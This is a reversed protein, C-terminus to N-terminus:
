CTNEVYTGRFPCLRVNPANDNVEICQMFFDEMEAREVAHRARTARVRLTERREKVLRRELSRVKKTLPDERCLPQGRRDPATKRPLVPHPTAHYSLRAKAHVHLRVCFISRFNKSCGKPCNGFWKIFNEITRSFDVIRVPAESPVVWGSRQM